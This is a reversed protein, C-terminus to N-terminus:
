FLKFIDRVTVVLILGMLLVFGVTHALQEYKMSLPRRLIKEIVVFFARGGDLAPIPLINIVALTISLMATTSILYNIGMRASKGVFSAIGVPGSIDYILGQGMILNKIVAFFSVFIAAFSIFAAIFGKYLAIYWPFRVIAVDALSLGLRYINDDQGELLAPIAKFTLREREREVVVSLKVAGNTRVYDSFAESNGIRNNDVSLIKDGFEMGAKEAPSGDSVQEVFIYSDEVIAKNDVDGSVDTPLGIMFGIALIVGALLVNMTVGAVLVTFRKWPKHFGFSDPENADEGNEGKIKV